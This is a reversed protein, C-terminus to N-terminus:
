LAGAAFIDQAKALGLPAATTAGARPPIGLHRCKEAIIAKSEIQRLTAVPLAVEVSSIFM